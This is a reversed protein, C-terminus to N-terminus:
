RGRRNKVGAADCNYNSVRSLKKMLQLEDNDTLKGITEGTKQVWYRRAYDMTFYADFGNKDRAHTHRSYKKGDVSYILMRVCAFHRPMYMTKGVTNKLGFAIGEAGRNLRNLLLRMKDEDYYETLTPGEQQVWFGNDLEFETNKSYSTNVMM